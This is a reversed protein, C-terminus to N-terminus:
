LYMTYTHLIIVKETNINFFLFSCYYSGGLENMIPLNTYTLLCIVKFPIHKIKKEFVKNM